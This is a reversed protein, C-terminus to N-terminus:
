PNFIDIEHGNAYNDNDIWYQPAEKFNKDDGYGKQIGEEKKLLMAEIYPVPLILEMISKSSTLTCLQIHFIGRTVVVAYTIEELIIIRQDEKREQDTM